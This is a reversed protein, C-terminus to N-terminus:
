LEDFAAHYSITGSAGRLTGAALEVVLFAEDPADYVSGIGFRSAPTFGFRPYFGPHGLVVVASVGLRRCQDLGTHVLRSGIGERRRDPVVAMPGLGMLSLEPYGPLEVPSFLIHAVIAGRDEAVLSVIPSAQKRLAAVLRAEAPTEFASENVVCVAGHDREEEARVIV